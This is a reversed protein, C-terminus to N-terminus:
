RGSSSILLTCPSSVISKPLRLDTFIIDFKVDGMACRVAEAGDSHCIVRCGLKSIMSEMVRRSVPNDECVITLIIIKLTTGLVDLPRYRPGVNLNMISQRRTQERRQNVRLLANGKVEETDSSSPSNEFVQSRRRSPVKWTEPFLPRVGLSPSTSSVSAARIRPPM